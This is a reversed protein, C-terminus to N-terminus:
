TMDLEQLGMSQLRDPEETWPFEGPLFVPTAQWKRRWFLSTPAYAFLTNPSAFYCYNLMRQETSLLSQTKTITHAQLPSFM